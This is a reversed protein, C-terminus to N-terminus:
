GRNERHTKIFVSDSNGMAGNSRRAIRQSPSCMRLVARILMDRDSLRRVLERRLVLCVVLNLGCSALISCIVIARTHRELSTENMSVAIDLHLPLNDIDRFSHLRSTDRRGDAALFIGSSVHRAREFIPASNPDEGSDVTRFPYRVVVGGTARFLTVSGQPGLTIDKFLHEFYSLPIIGVAVGQFRGDESPLRRSIAISAEGGLLGNRLPTSVFLGVGDREQHVLFYDQHAFDFNRLRLYTSSDVLNGDANLIIISGRNQRSALQDLPEVQSIERNFQDTNFYQKSEIIHQLQLDCIMITRAIDRNLVLALDALIQETQQRAYHGVDPLAVISIAFSGLAISVSFITFWRIAKYPNTCIM